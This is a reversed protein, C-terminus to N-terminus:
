GPYQVLLHSYTISFRRLSRSFVPGSAKGVLFEAAVGAHLSFGAAKGVEDDFPEDCAPLTQLTFVKRGKQPGVAIRPRDLRGALGALVCRGGGGGIRRGDVDQRSYETGQPFIVELPLYRIFVV